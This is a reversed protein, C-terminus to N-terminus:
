FASSNIRNDDIKANEIMGELVGQSSQMMQNIQTKLQLSEEPTAATPVVKTTSVVYVGGYGQIPKSIKGVPMSIATAAVAPEPMEGILGNRMSIGNATGPTTKNNAAIEAISKGKLKAGIAKFAKEKKYDVKVEDEVDSLEIHDKSRLGMSGVYTYTNGITLLNSVEGSKAKFAWRIAEKGNGPVADLSTSSNNVMSFGLQAEPFNKAAKEFDKSTKCKAIFGSARAFITEQTANSPAYATSIQGLQVGTKNGPFGVVKVIKVDAQGQSKFYRRSGGHFFIELNWANEARAIWVPASQGRDASYQQAITNYDMNLTDLMRFVSDVLKMRKAIAAQDQMVDRFSITLVQVFVSDSISKKSIVKTATINDKMRYPGVISGAPAAMISEASPNEALDEKKYYMMDYNNDGYANFFNTDNKAAQMEAIRANFKTMIDASDASSPSLPFSVHALKVSPLAPIYKKKHEKFYTELESPEVKVAEIDKETMPLAVYSIDASSSFFKSEYDSLWKPVYLGNEILANFKTISRNSQLQKEFELWQKEGEKNQNLGRMFMKFKQPDYQGDPGLFAPIQRMQPDIFQGTTIEALEAPTTTLGLKKLSKQIVNEVMFNNWIQNKLGELETEKPTEGNKSAKLEKERLDFEKKFEKYSLTNGNVTGIDNSESTLASLNPNIYEFLFTLLAIAIVAVLIYAHQQIKSIIAM